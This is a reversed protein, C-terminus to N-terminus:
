NWFYILYGIKEVEVLFTM